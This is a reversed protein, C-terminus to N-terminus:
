NRGFEQALLALETQNELDPSPGYRERAEIQSTIARPSKHKASSETRM